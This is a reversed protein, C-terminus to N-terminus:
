EYRLIEAPDQAAAQLAPVITALFSLFLALVSVSVVDQPVLMVPLNSFFYIVPDFLKTNTINELFVRINEVNFSFIIGIICGLCTGIFGIFLGCACFIRMISGSTTGFTRMIAIAFKKEQVIMMLNSVINFAAVIIILTLILFMVNRETKLAQFYHNHQSQWSEAKMGIEREIVSALKNAKTIDDVLVEINKISDKYNLFTQAAKIPMYILTSDYEFMGIDFIATVEYEKMKPIVNFLTDFGEPSILVVKDGYNINLAEALRAGMIIGEDFKRLNGVIINDTIATNYFLDKDSMSRVIVAAIKGNAAIIVQDNIIPIAKLVGPIKEISESVKHYDSNIDKDFYVSIHGDIGLISELLKIRFGNMVSMVVILTAVGLAISIISFFTMISCFKANRARLYRVAMSIEFAISM